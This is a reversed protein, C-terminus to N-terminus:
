FEHGLNHIVYEEAYDNIKKSFDEESGADDQANGEGDEAVSPSPSICRWQWIGPVYTVLCEADDVMTVDEFM